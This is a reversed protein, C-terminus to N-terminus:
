HVARSSVTSFPTWSWPQGGAPIRLECVPPIKAFELDGHIPQELIEVPTAAPDVCFFPLWHDQEQVLVV